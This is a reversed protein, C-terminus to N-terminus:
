TSVVVITSYNYSVVPCSFSTFIYLPWVTDPMETSEDVPIEIIVVFIAELVLELMM